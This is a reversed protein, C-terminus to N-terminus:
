HEPIMLDLFAFGFGATLGGLIGVVMAEPFNQTVIWTLMWCVGGGLLIGLIGCSLASVVQHNSRRM